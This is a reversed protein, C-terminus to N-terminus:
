SLIDSSIEVPLFSADAVWVWNSRNTTIDLEGQEDLSVAM